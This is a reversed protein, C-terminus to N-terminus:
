LKPRKISSQKSKRIMENKRNSSFSVKINVGGPIEDHDQYRLWLTPAAMIKPPFVQLSVM